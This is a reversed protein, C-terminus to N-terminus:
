KRKKERLHQRILLKGFLVPIIKNEILSSSPAKIESLTPIDNCSACKEACDSKFNNYDVSLSSLMKRYSRNGTIDSNGNLDEFRKAFDKADKLSNTSNPKNDNHENYLKCLIKLAECLKPMEKINMFDEKKDIHDKYSFCRLVKM